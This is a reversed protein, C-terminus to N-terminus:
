PTLYGWRLLQEQVYTKGLLHALRAKMLEKGLYFAHAPDEVGLQEFLAQIDTGSVFLRDNFV